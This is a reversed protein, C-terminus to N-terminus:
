RQMWTADYHHLRCVPLFRAFKTVSKIDFDFVYMYNLMGVYYVTTNVTRIAILVFDLLSCIHLCFRNM